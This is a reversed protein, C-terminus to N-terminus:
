RMPLSGKDGPRKAEREGQRNKQKQEEGILGEWREWVGEDRKVREQVEKMRRRRWSELEFARLRRDAELMGGLTMGSM